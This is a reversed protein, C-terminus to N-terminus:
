EAETVRAYDFAGPPFAPWSVFGGLKNRHVIITHLDALPVVGGGDFLRKAALQWAKVKSEPTGAQEAQRLLRDASPNLVGFVNGASRSLYFRDALVEPDAEGPALRALLLDPAMAPARDFQAVAAMPVPQEYVILNIVRFQTALVDAVQRLAAEDELPFALRLAAAQLKIVTRRAHEADDPLEIPDLTEFMAHPFLSEAAMAHAGYLGNLWYKPNVPAMTAIRLEERALGGLPNPFLALLNMSPFSHAAYGGPLRGLVDLPYCDALIDLRRARLALVRAVPDRLFTTEVEAFWPREGWYGDFRRLTVGASRVGDLRYPGTGADHRDLWGHAHDDAAHAALAAASIVKPGWAGALADLLWPLPRTLRLVFTGPDPASMAAVGAVPRSLPWPALRRREFSALVDASTMRSGDHFTVDDRLIFTYTLGDKSVRWSQALRGTISAEGPAYAVLGEYVAQRASVGAFDQALDPDFGDIAGSVGVRLAPGEAARGPPTAGALLALAMLWGAILSMRRRM